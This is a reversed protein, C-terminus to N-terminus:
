GGEPALVDIGENRLMGVLHILPLGILATPDEGEMKEVLAIGLGESKFSGTCGFRNNPRSIADYRSRTCSASICM